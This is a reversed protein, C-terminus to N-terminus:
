YFRAPRSRGCHPIVAAIIFSHPFFDAIYPAAIFIAASILFGRAISIIWATDIYDELKERGQLLFVNIGTETLIELFSITLAAVGFAGFQEPLLLRALIAIKALLIVRIIGRLFAIWFIGSLTKKFYSM